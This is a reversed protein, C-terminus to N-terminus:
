VAQLLSAFCTTIANVVQSSAQFANQASLIDVEETNENVGSIGSLLNSANTALNAATTSASSANAAQTGLAGIMSQYQADPGTPALALAAMQQANTGDLTPTGVVNANGPGPAAATAILAPDALLASSVAITAASNPNGPSSTYTSASGGNVFINPLVTGPWTGAIASGPDGNADLGNAQDTNVSTALSDAVANLQAQYKPITSNIGTLNAGISGGAEVTVGNGTVIGLNGTAGSGVTSLTQAVDGAVLQVGNLYVSISGNPAATSSVGLLSALQDVASRSQDILANADQGGAAGAVIGANLHSVETLLSNAVALKGGDNAGTGVESQLSASLQDLQTYSGSISTAVSQAAGVVAQESGVQNPNSALTSLDSWLTSLQSAIGDKSPEPFITEVSNMIQNAQSTAGQVGEAAINAAEYVADTLESISGVIVGQGVGLPGTAGEPSLNVHEAAYGPTNINSLNNSATDLEATDAALGSAAISLGMDSM